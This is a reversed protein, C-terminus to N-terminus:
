REFIRLQQQLLTELDEEDDTMWIVAGLDPVIAWVFEGRSLVHAVRSEAKRAFAVGWV